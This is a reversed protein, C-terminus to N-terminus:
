VTPPAATLIDALMNRVSFVYPELIPLVMSDQWLPSDVSFIFSGVVALVLSILVGRLAGFATGLTTDIGSMGEFSLARSIVASVISSLLLVVFFIAIHGLIMQMKLDLEFGAFLPTTLHGFQWTIWGSFIWCLVSLFSRVFGRYAGILLSLFIIVVFGIDIYITSM